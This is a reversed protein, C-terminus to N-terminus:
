RLAGTAHFKLLKERGVRGATKKLSDVKEAKGRLIRESMTFIFQPLFRAFICHLCPRGNQSKFPHM